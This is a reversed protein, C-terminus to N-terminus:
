AATGPSTYSNDRTNVHRIVSLRRSPFPGETHLDCGDLQREAQREIQWREQAAASPFFAGQIIVEERAEQCM